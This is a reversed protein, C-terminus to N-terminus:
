PEGALGCYGTTKNSNWRWAMCESGICPPQVVQGTFKTHVLALHIQPGCCSKTKAEEETTVM